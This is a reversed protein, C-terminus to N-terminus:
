VSRGIRKMTGGPAASLEDVAPSAFCFSQASAEMTALLANGERASELVHGHALLDDAAGGVNRRLKALHELADLDTPRVAGSTVLSPM